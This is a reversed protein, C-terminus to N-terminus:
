SSCETEMRNQKSCNCTLHTPRVNDFSHAGGRSLPVIHDESISRVDPWRLSLDISDGCLFCDTGYHEILDSRTWTAGLQAGRKRARRERNRELMEQKRQTYRNADYSRLHERNANRWIKSKEAELDRNREYWVKESAAAKVACRWQGPRGRRRM